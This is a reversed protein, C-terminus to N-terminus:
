VRYNDAHWPVEQEFLTLYRLNLHSCRSQSGYGLRFDLVWGNALKALHNLTQKGALYNRTRIGNYDRYNIM